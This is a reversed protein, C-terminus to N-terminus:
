KAYHKLAIQRLTPAGGCRSGSLVAVFIAAM